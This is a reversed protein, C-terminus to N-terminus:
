KDLVKKRGYDKFRDYVEEEFYVEDKFQIGRKKFALVDDRLSGFVINWSLLGTSLFKELDLLSYSELSRVSCIQYSGDIFIRRIVDTNGLVDGLFESVYVESDKIAYKSYYYLLDEEDEFIRIGLSDKYCYIRVIPSANIVNSVKEEILIEKKKSVLDRLEDSFVRDSFEM